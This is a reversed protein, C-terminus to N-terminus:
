VWCEAPLGKGPLSAGAGAFTPAGVKIGRDAREEDDAEETISVAKYRTTRTNAAAAARAARRTAALQERIGRTLRVHPPTPAVVAWLSGASARRAAQAGTCVRGTRKCAQTRADAGAATPPLVTEDARPAAAARRCEAAAADKAAGARLKAVCALLDRHAGQSLAHALTCPARCLHGRM